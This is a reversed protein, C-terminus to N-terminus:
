DEKKEGFIAVLKDHIKTVDYKTATIYGQEVIKKKAAERMGMFEKIKTALEQGDKANHYTLANVKNKVYEKPGYLDCAILPTKCAMAELGVLGLSDSKRKTPFVFVDFANYYLVLDKQDVFNVQQIKDELHYQHIMEDFAGQEDGTGVILVKVKKMFSEKELRHLADLLTDWGKDKEIRSVMGIYTYKKDLQLKELCEQQDSDYFVKLNVGGSPYIFIKEESVHYENLLVEKFYLSPAVVVDAFPLVRKSRGVNKIDAETDPVIDNGHVNLILKTKGTKKAVLVPFTSHSIFHVYFIDYSIFISKMMTGVMFRLYSFIKLLYIDQKYIVCKDVQYGMKELEEGVNKVFSGYHKYKKSPYMNSVLLIKKKEENKSATLMSTLFLIVTPNMLISGTIFSLIIMLFFTFLYTKKLELKSIAYDALLIYLIGGVYGLGYFIDLLDVSTKLYYVPYIGLIGFIQEDINSHLFLENTRTIYMVKEGILPMFEQAYYWLPYIGVLVILLIAIFMVIKHSFLEKRYDWLFYFLTLVFVVALIPSQYLFIFLIILLTGVIKTFYNQHKRLVDLTIPLLCALISIFENKSFSDPLCVWPILFAFAYFVFLSYYFNQTIRQNKIQLFFFVLIPLYLAELLFVLHSLIDLGKCYTYLLNLFLFGMCISLFARHKKMRWLYLIAGVLIAGKLIAGLWFTYEQYFPFSYILDVVPIFLLFLFLVWEAIAQKRANEKKNTTFVFLKSFVYNLVIVVVQSFLKILKDNQKLWTVGLFMIAMDLFLTILRSGFFHTAEKLKHPNNSKFVFLRNTVYAFLVSGIWSTINAIQLETPNTPDLLTFVLGYYIALSVVTTLVGVILYRVIEGIKEKKM